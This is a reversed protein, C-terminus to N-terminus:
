PTFQNLNWRLEYAVSKWDQIKEIDISEKSNLIDAITEFAHTLKELEEYSYRLKLDEATLYPHKELFEEDTTQHQLTYIGIYTFHLKSEISNRDLQKAYEEVAYRAIGGATTKNEPALRNIKKVREEIVQLAPDKLRIGIQKENSSM